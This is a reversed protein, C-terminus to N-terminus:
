LRKDRCSEYDFSLLPHADSAKSYKTRPKLKYVLEFLNTDSWDSATSPKLPKLPNASRPNWPKYPM